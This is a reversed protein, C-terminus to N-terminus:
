EFDMGMNYWVWELMIGFFNWCDGLVMGSNYLVWGWMIGFRYRVWELMRWSWNLCGGLMRGFADLSDELEMGFEKWIFGLM